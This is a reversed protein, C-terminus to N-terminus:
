GGGGIERRKVECLLSRGGSLRGLSEVWRATMCRELAISSLEGIEM